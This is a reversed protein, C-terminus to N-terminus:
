CPHAKLWEALEGSNLAPNLCINFFAEEWWENIVAFVAAAEWSQPIVETKVVPVM